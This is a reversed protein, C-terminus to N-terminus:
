GSAAFDALAQRQIPDSPCLCAGGSLREVRSDCRRACGAATWLEYDQSIAQTPPVMVPLTDLDTIVEWQGSTRANEFPKVQGGLLASVADANHRSATTLRFTALRSPRLKGNSGRVQTGIRIRGLQAARRQIDLLPM